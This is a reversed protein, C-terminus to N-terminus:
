STQKKLTDVKLQYERKLEDYAEPSLINHARWDDIWKLRNEYEKLEEKLEQLKKEEKTPKSM